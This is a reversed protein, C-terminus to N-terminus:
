NNKRKLGLALKRPWSSEASGIPAVYPLYALISKDSSLVNLRSCRSSSLHQSNLYELLLVHILRFGKLKESSMTSLGNIIDLSMLMSELFPGAADLVGVILLSNNSLTQCKRCTAQCDWSPSLGRSGRQCSSVNITRRRRRHM